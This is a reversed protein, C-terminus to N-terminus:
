IMGQGLGVCPTKSPTVGGPLEKLWICIDGELLSIQFTTHTSKKKKPLPPPIYKYFYNDPFIFGERAREAISHYRGDGETDGLFAANRDEFAEDILTSVHDM